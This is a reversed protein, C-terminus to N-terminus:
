GGRSTVDVEEPARAGRRRAIARLGEPHVAIAVAGALVVAVAGGAQTAASGFVLGLLGLVLILALVVSPLSANPRRM